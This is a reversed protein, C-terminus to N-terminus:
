FMKYGQIKIGSEAELKEKGAQLLERGSQWQEDTLVLSIGLETEIRQKSSDLLSKGQEIRQKFFDLDNLFVQDKTLDEKLYKIFDFDTPVKSEFEQRSMSKYKGTKPDIYSESKQKLKTILDEKETAREKLKVLFEETEEKSKSNSQEQSGPEPLLPQQVQEAQAELTELKEILDLTEKEIVQEEEELKEILQEINEEEKNGNKDDPTVNNKKSETPPEETTTTTTKELDDILSQTDREAQTQDSEEKKIANLLDAEKNEMLTIATEEKDAVFVTTSSEQQLATSIIEQQMGPTEQFPSVDEARVLNPPFTTLVISLAITATTRLFRQNKSLGNNCETTKYYPHRTSPRMPTTWADGVIWLCCAAYIWLLLLVRRYSIVNISSM